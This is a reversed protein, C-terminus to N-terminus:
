SKAIKDWANRFARAGAEMGDPHHDVWTAAIIMFDNTGMDEIYKALHEARKGGQVIPLVGNCHGLPARCANVYRAIAESEQKKTTFTGPTVVLDAGALRQLKVLVEDAIGWGPVRSLVDGGSNHSLVALGSRRGIETITSLGQLHPSVMVGDVGLAAAEEAMNLSYELDDITNAFYLKPEGTEDEIRHKLDVMRRVRDRFPSRPTDHTLEDDKIVDFGGKLIQENILLMIDTTLGNAPRMARCFFPRSVIGLRERLGSIGFRPGSCQSVVAEPFQIDTVAANALYGLRLVEGFVTNWIRTLHPGFLILPFAITIRFRETDPQSQNGSYVPTELHYAPAICAGPESLKEVNIVLAYYDAIDTPLSVVDDSDSCTSQERAIGYATAEGDILSVVDYTVIVYDETSESGKWTFEETSGKLLNPSSM